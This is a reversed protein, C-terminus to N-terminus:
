EQLLHRREKRWFWVATGIALVASMFYVIQFVSFNLIPTSFAPVFKQLQGGVVTGLLGSLGFGFGYWGEYATKGEPPMLSYRYPLACCWYGGNGLGALVPSLPLLWLTGPTLVSYVFFESAILLSSLVLVRLMGLRAELKAWMRTTVIMIFFSAINLFTIYIYRMNLYKLLYLGTYSSSMSLFFFFLFTYVLYHYFRENKLPQFLSRLIAAPNAAPQPPEDTKGVIRLMVLYDIIGIALATTFVIIFGTYSKGMFDLLSGMLLFTIAYALRLWFMRAYIFNARGEVPISDMFFISFGTNFISFIVNGVVIMASATLASVRGIGLIAPILVPLTTLLRYGLLIRALFVKKHKVREMIVSAVLSLMLLWSASSSVLGVMFDSAGMLLLLGTLFAGGTIVTASNNLMAEAIFLKQDHNFQEFLRTVAKRLGM